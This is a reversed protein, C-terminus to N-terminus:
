FRWKEEIRWDIDDIKIDGFYQEKKQKRIERKKQTEKQREKKRKEGRGQEIERLEEFEKDVHDKGLILNKKVQSLYSRKEKDKGWKKTRPGNRKWNPSLINQIETDEKSKNDLGMEMFKNWAEKSTDVVVRRWKRWDINIM